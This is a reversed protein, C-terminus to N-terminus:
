IRRLVEFAEDYSDIADDVMDLLQANNKNKIAICKIGAAKAAKFGSISDEFIVCEEPKVGLKQAVHLFLTPDPKAKYEVDGICYIHDGFFKNLSMVRVIAQLNHPYANTAVGSPISEERLKSHFDEFGNIYELRNEFHNNALTLKYALIEETSKELNFREKVLHSAKRLDVGALNELFKKDDETLNRVGHDILFDSTVRGWVHETQIITGDMDFIIAKFKEKISKM